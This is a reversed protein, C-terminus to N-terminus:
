EGSRQIVIAANGGSEQELISYGPGIQKHVIPKRDAPGSQTITAAGSPTSLRSTYLTSGDPSSGSAAMLWATVILAIM